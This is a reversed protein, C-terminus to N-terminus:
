ETGYNRNYYNEVSAYATRVDLDLAKDLCHKAFEIMKQREMQKAHQLYDLKFEDATEPSVENRSRLWTVYDYKGALWEVAGQPPSNKTDIKNPTM